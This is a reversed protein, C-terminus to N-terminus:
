WCILGNSYIDAQASLVEAWNHKFLEPASWVNKIRYGDFILENKM